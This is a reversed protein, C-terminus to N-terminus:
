PNQLNRRSRPQLPASILEGGMIMRTRGCNPSFIPL